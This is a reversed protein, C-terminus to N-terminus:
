DERVHRELSRLRKLSEILLQEHTLLERLHLYALTKLVKRGKATLSVRVQRRDATMTQRRAMGLLQLRDVLQVAGHPLLLMHEALSKMSIGAEPHSEIELMAQYQQSTVGTASAISDSSSLFQRLAYRFSALTEYLQRDEVTEASNARTLNKM